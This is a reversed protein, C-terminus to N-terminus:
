AKKFMGWNSGTGGHAKAVSESVETDALQGTSKADLAKKRAAALQAKIKGAGSEM